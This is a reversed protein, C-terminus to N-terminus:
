AIRLSELSMDLNSKRAIFYRGSKVAAVKYENAATIGNGAIQTAATQKGTPLTVEKM